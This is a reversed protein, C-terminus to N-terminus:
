ARLERYLRLFGNANEVTCSIAGDLGALLEGDKPHRDLLAHEFTYWFAEITKLSYCLALCNLQDRDSKTVAENIQPGELPKTRPSFALLYLGSETIATLRQQGQPTFVALLTKESDPLLHLASKPDAIGLADCVRSAFFRYKEDGTFPITEGFLIQLLADPHLDGRAFVERFRRDAHELTPHDETGPLASAQARLESEMANFARIYEIKWRMAEKGTFGMALLTFADRDLEFYRDFVGKITPNAVKKETLGPGRNQPVLSNLSEVLGDIDRLVNDHRKGFMKAVIRSDAVARGANVAVLNATPLNKDPAGNASDNHDLM